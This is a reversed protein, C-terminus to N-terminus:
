EQEAYQIIPKNISLVLLSKLEFIERFKFIFSLGFYIIVSCSMGILLKALSNDFYNMIFHSAGAMFISLLLIPLLDKFQELVTFKIIRASYYTNIFLALLSFFIQGTVMAKIGFPITSALFIVFLIKKIVEIRLVLDSRGKVNLVNINLSHIPYWMSALCMLQLLPAAPLWKDTLIVRIMPESIVALGLMLPFIIFAIMKLLKRFTAKLKENDDQLTSLAPFTVKGIVATVNASPLKEFQSARTFYGLDKASFYKGIVLTYLNSFISDILSASLLKFGFSFLRKFSDKSFIWLPLWKTYYWLFTVQLINQIISRIVLAWVGYGKLAMLIGITGSFIVSFLTSKAQTKFDLKITLITKQIIGFSTFVLNLGIVKALLILRPENYFNAIFPSFFFILLYFFIGICINFYFVTSFDIHNREKKQILASSFGGEVLTLSIAIFVNMMGILGYDVPMLLRALILGIVFQLGQGSFTEVFSWIIGKATKNKLESV